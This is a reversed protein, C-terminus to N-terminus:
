DFLRLQGDLSAPAIEEAIDHWPLLDTATPTRRVKTKDIYKKTVRVTSHGLQKRATEEDAAATVYTGCTRRLKHFLDKSTTPLGARALIRRYAAILAPWQEVNQDYPWPLLLQRPEFPLVIRRLAASVIQHLVDAQGKKQKQVSGAIRLAGTTPDFAELPTLMVATIRAGTNLITLQQAPWWDCAPIGCIEGREERCSGLIRRFEDISWAEPEDETERMFDFDIQAARQRRRVAFNVLARINRLDKNVTASSLPRGTGKLRGGKLRWGKFGDIMLDDIGDITLTEISLLELAYEGLRKISLRMQVDSAPSKEALNAPYYFQEYFDLTEYTQRIM